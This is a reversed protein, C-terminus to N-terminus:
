NDITLRFVSVGISYGYTEGAASKYIRIKNCAKGLDIKKWSLGGDLTKYGSNMTGVFGVQENIFGIGFERASADECLDLENWTEGGDTTKIIHQQKVAPDPNYSQITVYGVNRSPFSAKWTTEFSRNSQYKKTWTKGGDKTFLVLANSTTIDESSAACVFGEKTNFMKIDFLMKCDANMSWSSFSKGDDHSVMINSPTGVRGVAYIHYKYDINGHNVYQEKVIDIACLGKVYEGKYTVPTWSKGGDITKYLPVTDQVNPFYDTGVNGAFGRLSDIFAICRFFTGPKEYIKQWTEGSNKTQYIKGQGNCYWGNKQDIFCIDDQKGASPETKLQQWNYPDSPKTPENLASFSKNKIISNLWNASVDILKTNFNEIMINYYNPDAKTKYGDEISGVKAFSHDTEPLFYYTGNDKHYTNVTHIISKAGEDNLAEIDAEGYIAMVKSETKSWLETINVADLSQNFAVSRTFIKNDKESWQFESELTYKLNPNEKLLQAPTKKLMYVEYVIKQVDRMKKEIEIPPVGFGMNQIRTMNIIYEGWFRQVTGYVIVGKIWHYKSTLMPATIGGLSHGWIFINNTDVNPNSKLNLLAKEFAETEDYFDIDECAPTNENDGLGPKDIRMVLFGNESLGDTLRRYPHREDIDINSSCTYGQIFLVAPLKGNSHEPESILSRLLGNKYSISGYTYKIGSKQEKPRAMTNGSLKVFSGNRWVQYTIATNEKLKSLDGKKLDTIQNVIVDNVSYVIDNKQVGATYASGTEVVRQIILGTTKPYSYVKAISDNLPSAAFGNYYARKLEKSLTTQGFSNCVIATLILNIFITKM